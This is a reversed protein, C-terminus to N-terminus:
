FNGLGLADIRIEKFIGGGPPAPGFRNLIILLFNSRV